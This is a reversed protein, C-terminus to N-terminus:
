RHQFLYFLGLQLGGNFSNIGSTSNINTIGQNYRIDVGFGTSPKVYSVGATLGIETSKYKANLDTASDGSVLKAGTLVGLVPGAQIRFGNDYMYQFVLPINLYNLRVINNSSGIKYTTGQVSYVLEPQFAYRKNLHIHGLLGVHFGLTPNYGSNNQGLITYSNLGGKIGVNVHQAQLAVTSLLFAITTIIIYKM